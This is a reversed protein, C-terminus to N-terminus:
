VPRKIRVGRRALTIGALIFAAGMLELHGLAEAFLAWALVGAVIPQVLLSVAGFAAPLHALGYAILSQGTVHSILALAALSGWGYSSVPLLQEGSLWAIPLLAAASWLASWAMVTATSFSARLRGIAMIYAAYFGAAAFGLVDGALRSEQGDPGAGPGILLAAGSVALALGILFLRHFREKFLLFSAAAVVVPAMNVFLTANAVTTLNISWHWTALDGAFFIGGLALAAHDRLRAPKRYRNDDGRELRMWLFLLPIALMIRWFATASPGIESVRVFIPAFGIGIAGAVLAAVALKFQRADDPDAM